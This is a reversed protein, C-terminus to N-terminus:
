WDGWKWLLLWMLFVRGALPLSEPLDITIDFSAGKSYAPSISGVQNVGDFLVFHMTKLEAPKLVWAHDGLNVTYRNAFAAQKVSLLMTGDRLLEYLPGLLGTRRVTYPQGAMSFGLKAHNLVALPKGDLTVQLASASGTAKIM